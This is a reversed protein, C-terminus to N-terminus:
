RRRRRPGRAPPRPGRVRCARPGAGGRGDRRLPRRDRARGRQLERLVGAGPGGGRNGNAAPNVVLGLLAVPHRVEPRVPRAPPSPPGTASHVRRAGRGGRGTAQRGAPRPHLLHVRCHLLSRRDAAGHPADGHARPEADRLRLLHLHRHDGLALGQLWAKAKVVGMFNLAIMVLPLLFAIGFAIVFQMVFKLYITATLINTAGEPTLDGMLVELAKPLVSWALLAGAVFLPVATALFGYTYQKEKRTLGPTIFAFVQYLWWPSSILLGVFM